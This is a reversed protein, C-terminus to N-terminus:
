NMLRSMLSRELTAVIMMRFSHKINLPMDKRREIDEVIFRVFNTTSMFASVFDVDKLSKDNCRAEFAKIYSDMLETVVQRDATFAKGGEDNM